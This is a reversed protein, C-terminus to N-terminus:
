GSTSSMTKNISPSNATCSIVVDFNELQQPLDSLAMTTAGFREALFRQTQEDAGEDRAGLPGGIGIAIAVDAVGFQM